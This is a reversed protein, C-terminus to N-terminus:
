CGIFSQLFVGKVYIILQMLSIYQAVYSFNDLFYIAPM